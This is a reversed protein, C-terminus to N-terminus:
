DAGGRETKFRHVAELDPETQNLRWLAKLFEQGEKTKMNNRIWADRRYLLFLSMPLDQVEKITLGSYDAIAKEESSAV